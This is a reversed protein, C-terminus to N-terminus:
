RGAVGLVSVGCFVDFTELTGEQGFGSLGWAPRPADVNLELLSVGNIKVGGTNMQRAVQLARAEDQSFVYGGLGYPTQNALRVAEAEDQFTHLTAVPGFIEELTQEPAVGTVLTPPFFTGPLDPLPTPAHPRGGVATLGEVATVIRQRHAEHALPGMESQPSLSDGLRVMRLRDLAAALLDDAISEHVLLRGLARCWQGNLTTLGAVIGDAAKAVDADALVVMANNGGLELQMAKFDHACAAAVARGGQLGGTFSVARVRRDTILQQGVAAGGNVMQFLGRPLGAQELGDALFLCSYPAWESPKLIVPAGAALANAVKHAALAAPSNWPVIAVAPGLPKRWIEVEGLPGPVSARTHGSRLVGAAAKFALWVIANVFNTLTIVMGTHYSEVAAIMPTLPMLAAAAADLRDAREHAPLRAWDGAEYVRQAVELARAVQEPSTALQPAIPEGTNPNRVWGGMELSPRLREGDIYDFLQFRRQVEELAPITIPPTEMTVGTFIIFSSYLCCNENQRDNGIFSNM